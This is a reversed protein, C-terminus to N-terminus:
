DVCNNAATSLPPQAMEGSLRLDRRLQERYGNGWRSGHGVTISDGLCLIRLTTGPKVGGGTGPATAKYNLAFGSDDDARTALSPTNLQTDIAATAAVAHGLLSSGALCKCLSVRMNQEAQLHHCWYWFLSSFLTPIIAL